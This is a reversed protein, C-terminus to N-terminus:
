TVRMQNSSNTQWNAFFAPTSFFGVRPVSLVLESTARLAPLDYFRTTAQGPDPPRLTVMTWDDFDAATLQPGRATGGFGPCFHGNTLTRGDISGWLVYHLSRAKAALVVPDQQCEPIAEETAVDPNYWHMFNPSAPDLSQEIPVPGGASQVVIPTARNATRFADFINGDNDVQWTDLFAYFEKLATTMMLTRTTMADTLPRGQETLALMTRAFSEQANQLLLPTTSDNLGPQARVQDTFDNATVQTQQFALQFFRLMKSRYEPLAMWADVLAPLAQPDAAVADLEAASPALGVLVNKVKAVYVSPPAPSFAAGGDPPAHDGSRHSSCASGSSVVVVAAVLPLFASERLLCVSTFRELRGDPKVPTSPAHMLAHISVSPLPSM